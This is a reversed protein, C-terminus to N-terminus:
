LKAKLDPEATEEFVKKMEWLSDEILRAFVDSRLKKSAINFYLADKKVAYAVGYGDPVVEGWGYGDFYESSLQSTSLKWHSSKKFGSNSLFSPLPGDTATWLKKLGLLHRDVGMGNVAEAMYKVHGEM